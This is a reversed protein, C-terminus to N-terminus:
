PGTRATQGQVRGNDRPLHHPGCEHGQDGRALAAWVPDGKYDPASMEVSIARRAAHQRHQFTKAPLFTSSARTIPRPPRQPRRRHGRRASRPPILDDYSIGNYSHRKNIARAILTSARRASYIICAFFSAERERTPRCPPRPGRRTAVPRPFGARTKRARRPACVPASLYFVRECIASRDPSSPPTPPHHHVHLRASTRLSTQFTRRRRGKLVGLRALFSLASAEGGCPRNMTTERESQACPRGGGKRRRHQGNLLAAHVRRWGCHAIVMFKDSTSGKTRACSQGSTMVPRRRSHQGSGV